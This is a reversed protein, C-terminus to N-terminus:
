TTVPFYRRVREGRERVQKPSWGLVTLVAGVRTAEARGHKAAAIGLAHELVDSTTVGSNRREDKKFPDSLWESVRSQWPDEVFRAAAEKAAIAEMRADLHWAEGLEYRFLAEAWLQTRDRELAAVDVKGVKVPWFRRAGTEDKLYATGNTTGAFVCARPVDIPNRGYSPRYTDVRASIYAKIRSIESRNLSDLESLEVLWKGALVQMSDKTGLESGTELFWPDGLVRLLTSKKAGQPGEFIPVTDVKSGPDMARAVASILFKAGVERAYETDEAGCYTSLWADIRHEGDWEESRLFERVPHFPRNRAAIMVAKAVNHPAVKMKWVRELWSAARVDDDDTWPGTTDGPPREDVQWPPSRLKTVRRGFEDWALVGEWPFDSALITTANGLTPDIGMFDHEGLTMKLRSMWAEVAVGNALVPANKCPSTARAVFPRAGCGVCYALGVKPPVYGCAACRDLADEDDNVNEPMPLGESAVVMPSEEVLAPSSRRSTM